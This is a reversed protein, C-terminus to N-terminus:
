CNYVMDVLFHVMFGFAVVLSVYHGPIRPLYKLHISDSGLVRGIVEGMHVDYTPMHWYRFVLWKDKSKSYLGIM